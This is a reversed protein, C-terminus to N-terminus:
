HCNPTLKDIVLDNNRSDENRYEVAADSRISYIQLFGISVFLMLCFILSSLILKKTGNFKRKIYVKM